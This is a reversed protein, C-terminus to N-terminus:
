LFSNVEATKCYAYSTKRGSIKKLSECTVKFLKNLKLKVHRSLKNILTKEDILPQAEKRLINYSGVADANFVKNTIFDKFLGRKIRRGKYLERLIAKLQKEKKTNEEKKAKLYEKGTKLVKNLNAFPSTKSTFEETTEELKIGYEFKSVKLLIIKDKM